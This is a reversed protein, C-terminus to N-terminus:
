FYFTGFLTSFFFDPLFSTEPLRCRIPLTRSQTPYRWCPVFSVPPPPPETASPFLSIRFPVFRPSFAAPPPFVPNSMPCDLLAKPHIYQAPALWRLFHPPLDFFLGRAFLPSQTPIPLLLDFSDASLIFLLCVSRFSTADSPFTSSLSPSM